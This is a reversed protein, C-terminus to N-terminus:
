SVQHTCNLTKDIVFCFSPHLTAVVGYIQRWKTLSLLISEMEVSGLTDATVATLYGAILLVVIWGIDLPSSHAFGFTSFKWVCQLKKHGHAAVVAYLRGAEYSTRGVGIFLHFVTNDKVVVIDAYPTLVASPVARIIYRNKVFLAMDDGFAM